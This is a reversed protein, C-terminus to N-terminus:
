VSEGRRRQMEVVIERLHEAFNAYRTESESATAAAAPPAPPPIPRGFRLRVREGKWPQLASWRFPRNRPWIDFTGDISIPVIPAQLQTALIAAGKKFKKVEGDISREGEPFLILIKGHRLGFAGAQMARVLNTDPDVPAIRMWRAIASRVPTAFYESAGLFFIDRLTRFPLAAVLLFPDLFSEHNPCLLAPGQRPLNVSGTVRFGLFLWALARLIKLAGFTLWLLIRNPRLLGALLPDEAPLGAVLRAWPDGEAAPAALPERARVADVLQRVTYIKGAVEDPIEVSFRSELNLWLEVRSISDLGLDLELNADPRVKEKERTAERVLELAQAVYPDAAWAAEEETVQAAVPAAEAAQRRLALVRREIEYRKLKNTTTRPLSEMWIDFGLIRLHSPLRLSLNEIEFRLVERMNVVKKERMTEVNPVIIAHLKEVATEGAAPLGLVCLEQIYPSRAYNAEVEEPYVNKGSSLVIVEKKRGTVMLRGRSDFCGLDGTLLWGDRIIEATADPRNLYGRMLIPGRIAIEGVGPREEAMGEVPFIRVEVGPLPRGVTGLGGEGLQTCTAAGTTETLGYVEVLDFGLNFFDRGVAPDFRAGATILLRMGPGFVRHVRRFLLRGLNIRAFRRLVSNIKLLLRFSLGRMRGARAVEALVREHILYFFKPVCCFASPRRERLARLLEATNLEELFIASAGVTFPLLLNAVQALAHYLPLVALVSDREDVHFARLAAEAEALLNGHTLVVGKPDSTTGSTYLVLAANERGATSPPLSKFERHWALELSPIDESQGDFLLIGTSLSGEQIAKQAAPLYRPTTLIIRAGSDRLLIGIQQATYHTDLPVVVAGLRLIGLYAACWAISNDALIACRDGATINGSALFAASAEAHALLEGYTISELGDRRQVIIAPRDPFREAAFAFKECFTRAQQGSFASASSEAGPSARRPTSEATM